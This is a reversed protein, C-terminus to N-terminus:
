YGQVELMADLLGSVRARIYRIQEPTAKSGLKHTESQLLDFLKIAATLDAECFAALSGDYIPAFIHELRARRTPRGNVFGPEGITKLVDEDPSLMHLVHTTTERLSVMSHRQWDPGGQEISAMAGRYADVLREDLSGLRREFGDVKGLIVTELDDNVPYLHDENFSIASVLQTNTYIECAPTFLIDQGAPEWIPSTNGLSDWLSNAEVSLTKMDQVLSDVGKFSIGPNLISSPDGDHVNIYKNEFHYLQDAVTSYPTTLDRLLDLEGSPSSHLHLSGAVAGDHEVDANPEQYWRHVTDAVNGLNALGNITCSYPDLVSDPQTYLNHPEKLKEFATLTPELVLDKSEELILPNSLARTIEGSTALISSLGTSPDVALRDVGQKLDKDITLWDIQSGSISLPKEKDENM